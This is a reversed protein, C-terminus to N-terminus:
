KIFTLYPRVRPNQNLIKDVSKKWDELASPEASTGDALLYMRALIAGVESSRSIREYYGELYDIMADYAEDITLIKETNEMNLTDKEYSVNHRVRPNQSLIKDVSEKWEEQAGPDASKNNDKLLCMGDLLSVVDVSHTREYDKDLYDIMADYAEDMTLKKEINEM